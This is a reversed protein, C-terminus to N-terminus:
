PKDFEYYGGRQSLRWKTMWFMRNKQMAYIASECGSWGGTAVEYVGAIDRIENKDAKRETLRGYSAFIPKIFEYFGSIDKITDWEEIAQLTEDTPYDGDMHEFDLEM